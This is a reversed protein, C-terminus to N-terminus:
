GPYDNKKHLLQKIKIYIFDRENRNCGIYISAIFTVMLCLIISIICYIFNSPLIYHVYLPIPYTLVIVLIIRYIVSIFYQRISIGAIKRLIILRAVFCVGSLAILVYYPSNLSFGKKLLFYSIPLNLLQIGGAIIQYTRIKATALMLTNFAYTLTEIQLFILILSVFAQTHPPVNKLWITLIEKSNIIIPFTVLNILLFGFKSSRFVLKHCETIDHSAYLKTIQPDVAKMFNGVFGNVAGCVQTAIGRAANIATGYIVNVILNVGQDRCISALVGFFNWVSFGLMEKVISKEYVSSIKCGNLKKICYVRYILAPVISVLLIMLAYVKLNDLFSCFQLLLVVCFKLCAEFMSVYAFINMKEHSIIAANYPLALMNIIFTIASCQLVWNAASIRETAITMHFNLFWVGITEVLFLAIIALGCQIWFSVNFVKQFNGNPKGLEFSLFRSIAGSITSSLIAFMAVLGGVVNYIGYDNIGLANLVVRSTYLNVGILLFM